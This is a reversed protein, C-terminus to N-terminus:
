RKVHADMYFNYKKISFNGNKLNMRVNTVYHNGTYRSLLLRIVVNINNNTLRNACVILRVATNDNDVVSVHVIKAKSHRMKRELIYM